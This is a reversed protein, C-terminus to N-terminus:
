FTKTIRVGYLRPDTLFVNTTLGSDDSNLFAGTIHTSDFVNKVYGMVQWGTADTVILALNVNSYGRVKDYTMDNFIRWYSQSQWYFDGHLTAAWDESVPMTYDASLSTTFHPANPMQNGGINKAFGEGNNPATSPDFGIYGPWHTPDPDPAYTGNTIPDHGLSYANLCDYIPTDPLSSTAKGALRQNEVYTPMICNSTQIVYPKLVVWDPNGATRDMLDIAYQNKDFTADEYGGNFGLKVGPIPSWTTELEAGKVTANFNLNVSTRDVIQSIQYGQYKYLFVDANLTMAGDLLTNKTGLEFADNFEPKFILPHATVGPSTQYRGGFATFPTVGPPNAGGAKYGHAYSGYFLSQDTFDLKPTWDVVARGTFKQWEQKVVGNKCLPDTGLCGQPIGKGPLVAWSPYEEFTKQDDTWRLGGTLKVDPSVQYYVEGFGAYSKLQYPNKSLFYNHGQGDVQGLPNPDIYACGIGPFIPFRRSSWAQWRRSHTAIIPSLHM